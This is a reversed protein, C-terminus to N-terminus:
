AHNAEMAQRLQERAEKRAQLVGRDWFGLGWGGHTELIIDRADRGPSEVRAEEVSARLICALCPSSRTRTKRCACPPFLEEPM